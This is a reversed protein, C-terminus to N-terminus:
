DDNKRRIGLEALIEEQRSFMKKEDKKSMHDYGLLHLLGHAFLFAMERKLTHGYSRAQKKARKYCILIDGLQTPFGKPYDFKEGELLAFSLVDTVADINRYTHNYFRIEEEDVITVSVDYKGELGEMELTKNAIMRFLKQYGVLNQDLNNQYYVTIKM